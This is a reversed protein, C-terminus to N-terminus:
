QGTKEAIDAEIREIASDMDLDGNMVASVYETTANYIVFGYPSGQLQFAQPTEELARAAGAAFVNLGDSVAQGAGFETYDIGDAQIQAHAPIAFIRSYWERAIEDSCRGVVRDADVLPRDVRRAPVLGSQPVLDGRPAEAVRGFHDLGQEKQQAIRCDRPLRQAHVTASM